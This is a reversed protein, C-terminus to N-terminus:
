LNLEQLSKLCSNLDIDGNKAILIHWIGSSDCKSIVNFNHEKALAILPIPEKIHVMYLYSFSDLDRLISIARELPKPHELARADLLQYKM